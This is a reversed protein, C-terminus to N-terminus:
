GKRHRRAVQLMERVMRFSDRIPHVSSQSHRTIRVPIEKVAKSSRNLLFLLEFDIGFRDNRCKGFIDHALATRFGKIGCQSDSYPIRLVMRALLAFCASMLRRHLPYSRYGDKDLRRSGIVADAGTEDFLAIAQQLPFLGYALDADTFFTLRGSARAVGTRLAFGKGRNEEYSLIIRSAAAEQLLALTRDASADNVLILELPESLEAEFREVASLLDAVNHEENYLPIVLSIM